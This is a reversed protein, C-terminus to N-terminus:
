ARQSARLRLAEPAREVQTVLLADASQRLAFGALRM